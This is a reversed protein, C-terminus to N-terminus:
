LLLLKINRRRWIILRQQSGARSVGLGVDGSARESARQLSLKFRALAGQESSYACGAAYPRRAEEEEGSAGLQGRRVSPRVYM